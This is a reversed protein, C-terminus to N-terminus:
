QPKAPAPQKKHSPREVHSATLWEALVAPNNQYKNPVIAKLTELML